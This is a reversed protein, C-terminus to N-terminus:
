EKKEPDTISDKFDNSLLDQYLEKMAHMVVEAQSLLNMTDKSIVDILEQFLNKDPDPWVREALKVILNACKGKVASNEAKGKM